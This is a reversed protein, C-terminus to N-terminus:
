EECNGTTFSWEVKRPIKSDAIDVLPNGAKDTTGLLQDTGLPDIVLIYTTNPKLGRPFRVGYEPNNSSDYIGDDPLNPAGQKPYLRISEMEESFQIKMGVCPVDTEGPLPDMRVIYPHVNDLAEQIKFFLSVEPLVNTSKPDAPLLSNERLILNLKAGQPFAGLPSFVLTDNEHLTTTFKGTIYLYPMPIIDTDIDFSTPDISEVFRLVVKDKPAIVMCDLDGDLDTDIRGSTAPINSSHFLGQPGCQAINVVLLFALTLKM